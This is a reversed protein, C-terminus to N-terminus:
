NKLELLERISDTLKENKVLPSGIELIMQPSIPYDLSNFLSRASDLDPLDVALQLYPPTVTQIEFIRAM